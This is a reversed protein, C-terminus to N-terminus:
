VGHEGACGIGGFQRQEFGLPQRLHHERLGRLDLCEFALDLPEPALDEPLLALAIRRLGVRLLHVQALQHGGLRSCGLGLLLHGRVLTSARAAVKGVVLRARREEVLGLHRHHGDLHRVRVDLAQRAFLVFDDALLAAVAQRLAGAAVHHQLVHARHDLPAVRLRQMARGRGHPHELAAARVHAEDSAQQHVLEGPVQGQVALMLAEDGRAEIQAPRPQRLQHLL